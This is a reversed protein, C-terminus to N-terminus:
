LAGGLTGRLDEAYTSKLGCAAIIIKIAAGQCMDGLASTKWPDKASGRHIKRAGEATCAFHSKGGPGCSGSSFQLTEKGHTGQAMDEASTRRPDEASRGCIKRPVPSVFRQVREPVGYASDALRKAM